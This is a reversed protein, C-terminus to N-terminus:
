LFGPPRIKAFSSKSGSAVLGHGELSELALANEWRHPEGGPGMVSTM